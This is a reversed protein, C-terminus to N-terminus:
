VNFYLSAQEPLDTCLIVNEMEQIGINLLENWQQLHDRRHLEASVICIQKSNKLHETLIGKTYWTHVFSDLWIGKISGYFPLDTEFESLRSYSKLGVEVTVKLDPISMDFLFYNNIKYEELKTMLPLQLGDAKINLALPATKEINYKKYASFLDDVSISESTPMDHSVVLQGMYDRIDTETGYGLSFSREFAKFTNKENPEKWYGRHSIVIM